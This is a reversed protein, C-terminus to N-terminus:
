ILGSEHCGTVASPAKAKTKTARKKKLLKDVEKPGRMRLTLEKMMDVWQIEGSCKPCRGDVPLFNDQRERPPIIHRSWCSLHGVGECGDNACLAYVGEGPPMYEKCVVCHGEREFGFVERGKAVYDKIPVYDLPLAHIGCPLPEPADEEGQADVAPLTTTTSSGFDTVVSLNSRLPEKAVAKTKEWVKYVDANFFHLRLPWRSFSPVGLLLHINSMISTM